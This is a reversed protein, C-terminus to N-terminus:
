SAMYPNKPSSKIEYEINFKKKESMYPNICYRSYMTSQTFTLMKELSFSNRCINAFEKKRPM